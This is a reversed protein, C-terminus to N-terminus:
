VTNWSRLEEVTPLESDREGFVRGCRSCELWEWGHGGLPSDHELACERLVGCCTPVPCANEAAHWEWATEEIIEVTETM